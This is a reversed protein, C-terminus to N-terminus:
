EHASITRGGDVVLSQGTIFSADDSALFAVAAAIEAPTGLRRLPTFGITQARYSEPADAWLATDVAGPAVANVRVGDAGYEVALQRVLAELAGKAAAYAPFTRFGLRAHISSTIVIAGRSARLAPLGARIGHYASDLSLRLQLAWRQPDLEGVAAPVNRGANLHLVDIRGCWSLLTAVAHDWDTPSCVDCHLYRAWGGDADIQEVVRAGAEDDIDTVLVRAGEAALRRATAAGIGSAAASLLATKATFRSCPPTM